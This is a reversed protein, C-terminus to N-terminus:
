DQIEFAKIMANPEIITYGKWFDPNYKKFTAYEYADEKSTKIADGGENKDLVVVQVKDLQKFKFDIEMDLENQKRRGAVKKNKEIITLPRDIGSTAGMEREFYTFDYKGDGNKSYIMKGRHVDEYHSVGFLRFRKLAKVNTYDLRYVGYDKANVYMTGKYDAGRKPSFKIIYVLEDDIITHGTIDFDYKRDKDLVDLTVDEKYFTGKLVSNINEKANMVLDEKNEKERKQKEEATLEKEPEDDLDMEDRDVKTGIIGSRIKFYSDDKINEEFIKQVRKFLEEASETTKPDFLRAAKIVDVEQGDQNGYIDGILETYSAIPNKIKRTISDMLAQNLDAISSEEVEIEAKSVESFYSKRYFIKKRTPSISYNEIANDKIRAIIDTVDLDKDVLIVEDLDIYKSQLVVKQSLGALAIKQSIYGLAQIEIEGGSSSNIITFQGIRVQM